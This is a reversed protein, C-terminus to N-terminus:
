QVRKLTPSRWSGGLAAPKPWYLRLMLNFSGDGSPLWKSEHEPGPDRSQIYLDLSGDRNFKMRDRNRLPQNPDIRVVQNQM